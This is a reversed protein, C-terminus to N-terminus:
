PEQPEHGVPVADLHRLWRHCRACAHEPPEYITSTNYPRHGVVACVLPMVNDEFILRRTWRNRWSRWRLLNWRQHRNWVAYGERAAGGM